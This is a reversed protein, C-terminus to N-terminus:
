TPSTTRPQNPKIEPLNLDSRNYPCHRAMPCGMLAMKLKAIEGVSVNHRQDCKISRWYLHGIAGALVSIASAMVGIAGVIVSDIQVISFFIM